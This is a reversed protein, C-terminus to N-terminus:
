RLEVYLYNKSVNFFGLKYYISDSLLSVVSKLSIIM